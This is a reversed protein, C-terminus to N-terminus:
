NGEIGVIALLNSKAKTPLYTRGGNMVILSADGLM